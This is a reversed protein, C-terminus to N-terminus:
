EEKTPLFADVIDDTNSYAYSIIAELVQIPEWGFEKGMIKDIEYFQGQADLLLGIKALHQLMQTTEPHPKSM